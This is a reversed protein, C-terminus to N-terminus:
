NSARVGVSVNAVQPNNKVEVDVKVASRDEQTYPPYNQTPVSTANKSKNAIIGLLPTGSIEIDTLVQKLVNRKLQGLGAVLVIGNTNSALLHADALELLSPADYIILDFNTKLEDMLHQMKQSALLRESDPPIPGTTIVYLNEEIPSREIVNRWDVGQTIINTLGQVNLIGIRHHLSPYRLNADVLLVRQGIAAAAQALHVAVTSKGEGQAASSIVVSRIRDDSGLLMINAYFSHFMEFLSIRNAQQLRRSIHTQPAVNLEKKLPIVGLLPLKTNKKLEKVSYFINSLKDVVLAAGIGLLLGLAGETALNRKSSESTAVPQSVSTLKQDLLKWPQQQQAKETELAQQKATHQALGSNALQLQQQINDYDQSVSVLTQIDKNLTKIQDDFFQDRASLSRIQSQLESQVRIEEGSLLPLLYAKKEKLAIIEPHEELYVASKQALEIDIAQISDLIKQYRANANLLPNSAREGTKKALEKQLDEYKAVLEVLQLRNERQQKQLSSIQSTLEQYKQEPNILNHKTQLNHLKEQLKKVQAKTLKAQKNVYELAQNINLQSEKLSYQLYTDALLKSVDNVLKQDPSVYQVNLINPSSSKIILNSVLADYDIDPYKSKLKDIIPQIVQPSRLVKIATETNSIEANSIKNINAITQSASAATDKNHKNEQTIPKTLIEFSGLYVPPATEEKPITVTVVLATVGSILLFRRRLFSFIQKIYLEDEYKNHYQASKTQPLYPTTESKLM